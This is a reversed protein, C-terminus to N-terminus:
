ERYGPVSAWIADLNAVAWPLRDRLQERVAVMQERGGSKALTRGVARIEEAARGVVGVGGDAKAQPDDYITVLTQLANDAGAGDSKKGGFLRDLFGM